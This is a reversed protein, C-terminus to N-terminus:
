GAPVGDASGGAEALTPALRAALAPDTRALEAALAATAAALARRLEAEDLTRVLTGALPGTVEEPLLHAGKGYSYPHGLRLCALAIVQDRVGSIWYAAQWWRRREVCARAHLVHHWALGVPPDSRAPAASEPPVPHGFVTRWRPGLPGFRDAPTFALDAELCGPLLFVRYVSPGAPLDWHHLAAFDRYLLAAWRQLAPELPGDVALVLDIDSWRDSGDVAYSGTVAAGGVGPDARAHELLAARVRDREQVTFM